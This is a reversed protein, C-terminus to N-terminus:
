AAQNLEQLVEAASKESPDVTLLRWVESGCKDIVLQRVDSVNSSSALRMMDAYSKPGLRAKVSEVIRTEVIRNYVTINSCKLDVTLIDQSEVEIGGLKHRPKGDAYYNRIAGAIQPAFNPLLVDQIFGRAFGDAIGEILIPSYDGPGDPRLLGLTLRRHGVEHALRYVFHIDDTIDHHAEPRQAYIIDARPDYLGEIDEHNGFLNAIKKLCDKSVIHVSGLAPEILELGYGNQFASDYDELAVFMPTLEGYDDVQEHEVLAAQESRAIEEAEFNM